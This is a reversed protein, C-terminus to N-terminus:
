AFTPEHSELAESPVNRSAGLTKSRWDIWPEHRELCAMGLILDYRSDLDLVLCREISDFDLFKVRLDLPVIPVTVRSGTALRVTISDGEHAKLAEAYRESRELFRRRDYNCSAGSDILISWQKEFGKVTAEAVLLGHKYGRETSAPVSSQPALDQKLRDRLSTFFSLEVGTPCM